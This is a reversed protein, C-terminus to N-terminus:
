LTLPKGLFFDLIKIKFLYDYKSQLLDSEAKILKNKADNYDYVNLMGENFKQENYSFSEQLAEVSKKAFEYQKEAAIVDARVQEVQKRLQNKTKQLDNKASMVGIKANAISSNTMWGNFLPISLSFSLSQSFNDKLQQNFPTIESAYDYVPILVNEGSIETQYGSPFMGLSDIGTIRTRADSYGSGMSGNLTIRPSREGRSIALSKNSSKLRYEASKVNPFVQKAANYIEETSPIKNQKPLSIAPVVIEFHINEKIELLQKINLIAIEKQSKAKVLQLNESAVQSRSELLSGKALQGENVLKRIREEQEISIALQKQAIIVLEKNFLLQLFDTAVTISIDNIVKKIDYQKAMYEYNDRKVKNLNQFGSFLTVSSSLSFNNTKVNLDSFENTFPDVTRGYNYAQSSGGNLSPLLSLKSQLLQQESSLVSLKVQKIDLNEEKARNICEQLTWSKQSYINLSHLVVILFVAYKKIEFKIYRM